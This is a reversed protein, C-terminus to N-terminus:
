DMLRKLLRRASEFLSRQDKLSRQQFSGVAILWRKPKAGDLLPMTLTEQDITLRSVSSKSNDAHQQCACDAQDILWTIM